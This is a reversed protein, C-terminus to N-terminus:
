DSDVSTRPSPLPARDLVTFASARREMRRRRWALLHYLPFVRRRAVFRSVL